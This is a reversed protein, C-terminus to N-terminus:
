LTVLALFILMGITCITGWKMFVTFHKWTDQARAAEQPDAQNNLSANAM